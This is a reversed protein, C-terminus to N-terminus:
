ASKQLVTLVRSAGRMLSVGASLCVAGRPPAPLGLCFVCRSAPKGTDGVRFFGYVSNGHSVEIVAEETDVSESVVALM